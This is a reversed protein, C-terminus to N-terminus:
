MPNYTGNAGRPEFVGRGRSRKFVPVLGPGSLMLQQVMVTSRSVIMKKMM